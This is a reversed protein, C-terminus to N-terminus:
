RWARRRPDFAVFDEVLDTTAAHADNVFGPMERGFADDRQLHDRGARLGAFGIQGAEADFGFGHRTQMM